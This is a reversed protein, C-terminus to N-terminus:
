RRKMNLIAMEKTSAMSSEMITIDMLQAISIELGCVKSKETSLNTVCSLFFYFLAAGLLLM